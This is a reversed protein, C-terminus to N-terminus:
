SQNTAAGVVSKADAARLEHIMGAVQLAGFNRLHTGHISMLRLLWTMSVFLTIAAVLRAISRLENYKVMLAFAAIAAAQLAESLTGLAGFPSMLGPTFSIHDLANHLTMWEFDTGITRLPEEHRQLVKSTKDLAAAGEAVLGALTAVDEVTRENKRESNAAMALAQKAKSLAAELNSLTARISRYSPDKPLKGLQAVYETFEDLELPTFSHAGPSLSPGVYQTARAALVSKEM